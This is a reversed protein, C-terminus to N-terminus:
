VITTRIWELVEKITPLYRSDTNCCCRKLAKTVRGWQGGYREDVFCWYAEYREKDNCGYVVFLQKLAAKANAETDFSM